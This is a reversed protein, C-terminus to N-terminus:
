LPKGQTTNHLMERLQVLHAKEEDIIHGITTRDKERSVGRMEMYFLISDKEAEIALRLAEAQDSVRRAAEAAMVADTFVASDALAKLYSAHQGTYEEFHTEKEASDLMVSFTKEHQREMDALESFTRKAKPDRSRKALTTYFAIGNREINVATQTLESGSFMVM